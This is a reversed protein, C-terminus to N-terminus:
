RFGVCRTGSIGYSPAFTPTGAPYSPYSYVPAPTYTYGAPYVVAGATTGVTVTTVPVGAINAYTAVQKGLETPSVAGAQRFAQHTGGASSIVLGDTLQFQDALAKGVASEVDVSLCVYKEALLKKADASLGSDAMAKAFGDGKGILVAIPKKEDAAKRLAQGYDTQAQFEPKAGPALSGSLAVVALVTAIM